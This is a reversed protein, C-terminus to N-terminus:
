ARSAPRPRRGPTGGFGPHGESGPLHGGCVRRGDDHGGSGTEPAKRHLLRAHQLLHRVEAGVGQCRGATGLCGDPDGHGGPHPTAPRGAHRRVPHDAQGARGAPAADTVEAVKGRVFHMGEELLRQYLEEYGKQNTRMDIYFSYVEANTKELVLHGFKLSAKCKQRQLWICSDADIVPVRPVAQPFPTYIAKRNGLGAEFETDVVKRPCKEICIGCGTCADYDVHRAKKRVTVQFSGVSGKVSEIESYTLLTVNEHQGAESM